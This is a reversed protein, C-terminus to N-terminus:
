IISIRQRKDIANQNPLKRCNNTDVTSSNIGSSLQTSTERNSHVGYFLNYMKTMLIYILISVNLCEHNRKQRWDCLKFVLCRLLIVRLAVVLLIFCHYEYCLILESARWGCSYYKILSVFNFIILISQIWRMSWRQQNWWNKVDLYVSLSDCDVFIQELTDVMSIWSFSPNTAACKHRVTKKKARLRHQCTLVRACWRWLGCYYCIFQLCDLTFSRFPIVRKM